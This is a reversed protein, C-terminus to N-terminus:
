QPSLRLYDLGFMYAAVALPNRDRIAVNFQNEGAALTFVGLPIEDTVIVEEHYFDMPEGAAVGNIAIQHIGYDPAKTFAAVIAYTGATEVDFGLTLTDGPKGDRWWLQM